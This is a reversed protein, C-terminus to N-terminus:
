VTPSLNKEKVDSSFAVNEAAMFFYLFLYFSPLSFLQSQSIQLALPITSSLDCALSQGRIPQITLLLIRKEGGRIYLECMIKYM